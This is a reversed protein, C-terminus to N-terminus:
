EGPDHQKSKAKRKEFTEVLADIVARLEDGDLCEIDRVVRKIITSM